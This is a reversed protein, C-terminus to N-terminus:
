CLIQVTLDAGAVVGVADIDVTFYAGDSITTTNMSTVKGSTFNSATITPRNAQTSFITTGNINVDVIISAGTPATGVSARVAKITLTAGSDNYLRHTGAGTTLTGARSFAFLVGPELLREAGASSRTWLVGGTKAFVAVWGAPPNGPSNQEPLALASAFKPM